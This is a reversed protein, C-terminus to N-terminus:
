FSALTKNRTKFNRDISSDIVAGASENNTHGVSSSEVDECVYDPFRKFDNHSFKLAHSRVFFVGSFVSPRPINFVM